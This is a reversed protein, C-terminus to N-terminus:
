HLTHIITTSKSYHHVKDKLTKFHQYSAHYPVM